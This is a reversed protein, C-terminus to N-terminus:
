LKRQADEWESVKHAIVEDSRYIHEEILRCALKADRAMTAEFIQAHEEHVNRPISEDIVAVRLYRSSQHYLIKRFHTIWQNTCAAVLADHFAQNARYWDSAYKKPNDQLRNDMKTLRHYAAVLDAEWDDGGKKISQKLAYKELLVRAEAIDHFDTTSIPAVWFGRQEETIVLTDSVLRSLSERMTGSGVGYDKRIHEVRLRSGPPYKGNLIDERMALYTKEIASVSSNVKSKQAKYLM